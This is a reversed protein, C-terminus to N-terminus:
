FCVRCLLNNSYLVFVWDATCYDLLLVCAEFVICFLDSILLSFIYCCILLGFLVVFSILIM